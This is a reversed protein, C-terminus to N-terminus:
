KLQQRIWTAAREHSHDLDRHGLSAGVTIDIPAAQDKNKAASLAVLRRTFAIASETSVREDNNGISIWVPRSTLRPAIEHLALKRVAENKELGKFESLALLDTVPAFGVAAKIRDDAAAFHFALFGGRSVGSAAVRAADTFKEQILHDLVSSAQKTFDAIFPTGKELRRRWGLLQGPEGKKVDEGHCPPDLAVFLYGHKALLRGVETLYPSSEMEKLGLGFIFLTPAPKTQKDGFVGYRVGGPTRLIHM